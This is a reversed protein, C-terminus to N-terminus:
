SAEPAAESEQPDEAVPAAGVAESPGEVLGLEILRERQEPDQFADLYLAPDNDFAARVRAPLADFAREAGAVVELAERFGTLMSVDTYQPTQHNLHTVIGTSEFRNMIHNIDCEQKHAQKTRSPEVEPDFVKRSSERAEERTGVFFMSM